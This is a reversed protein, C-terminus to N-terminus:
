EQIDKQFHQYDKSSNWDGGWTFGRRIFAQYCPDNNRIYYVNDITRDAYEAANKPSINEIKNRYTIYPNYRPNIDIASGNSHRSLRTTGAIFRFNFASSNNDEMSKEDDADYEDILIMREIPYDMGYLESFIEMIDQAILKNVILEGIYTEGDFGKHLVRIYNLDEYPINCDEGYSKGNIRAKIEETLNQAYFLEKLRAEDVGNINLATGAPYASLIEVLNMDSFASQIDALQILKNVTLSTEEEIYEEVEYKSEGPEDPEKNPRLDEIKDTDKEQTMDLVVESLAEYTVESSDTLDQDERKISTQELNYEEKRSCSAVFFCLLLIVILCSSRRGM